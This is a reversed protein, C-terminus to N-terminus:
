AGAQDLYRAFDAIGDQSGVEYFRETVEYGALEAAMSLDRFLDALDAAEGSAVRTAILDRSIVSLGYDIHTMRGLAEAGPRKDYLAITPPTFIVNSRDWRNENRMVTMLAPRRSAVFARFVPAFEVPLYSDGYLVFFADALLGADFALRLAGATGKLDSGEDVYHVALGWASGDGVHAVIQRGRYGICYVVEAVTQRALWALQYDAFPRGRVPILAKPITDTAPRLRTGLGGALIVCQMRDM